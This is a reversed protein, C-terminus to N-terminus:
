SQIECGPLSLMQVRWHYQHSIQYDGGRHLHVDEQACMDQLGNRSLLAHLNAEEVGQQVENQLSPM